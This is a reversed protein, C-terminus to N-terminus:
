LIDHNINKRHSRSRDITNASVSSVALALSSPFPEWIKRHSSRTLPSNSSNPQHKMGANESSCIRNDSRLEAEYINSALCKHSMDGQSMVPRTLCNRRVFYGCGPLGWGMVEEKVMGLTLINAFLLLGSGVGRPRKGRTSGSERGGSVVVERRVSPPSLPQKSRWNLRIPM